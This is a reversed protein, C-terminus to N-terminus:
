IIDSNLVVSEGLEINPINSQIVVSEGLEINAINSEGLEVTPIVVSNGIPLGFLTIQPSHLTPKDSHVIDVSSDLYVRHENQEQDQFEVSIMDLSPGQGSDHATAGSVDLKPMQITMHTTQPEIKPQATNGTSRDFAGFYIVIAHFFGKMNISASFFPHVYTFYFKGPFSNTGLVIYVFYTDSLLFPLWIIINVVNFLLMFRYMAFLGKAKKSHDKKIRPALEVICRTYLAVMAIFVLWLVVIEVTWFVFYDANIIYNYWDYFLFGLPPIVGTVILKYPVNYDSM